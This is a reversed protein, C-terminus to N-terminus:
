TERRLWGITPEDEYDPEFVLWCFDTRGGGPKEGRLIVEVPPMSPRPTLLWVAKLPLDSLWRAANLRATPCIMATKYAGLKLAREAFKRILSFPPNTIISFSGQVPASATLFDQVTSHADESIDSGYSSFQAARAAKLVSGIGCAPDWILGQFGEVGFLATTCWEPEVYRDDAHRKWVHSNRQKEIGANLM